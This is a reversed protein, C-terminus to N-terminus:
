KKDKAATKEKVAVMKVGIHIVDPGRQVLLVVADRGAARAEDVLAAAETPTSVRKQNIGLLVDGPRLGKAAADSAPNVNSIVVGTVDAGLGLRQRVEPTLPQLGLGLHQSTVRGEDAGAEDPQAEPTLTLGEGDPGEAVTVRLTAPKGERLIEMNVTSGITTDSVISQLSQQRTVEKGNFKLIVDGQLVGAQAAPTNDEVGAVIAGK